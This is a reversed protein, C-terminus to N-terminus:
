VDIVDYRSAVGALPSTSSSRLPVYEPPTTETSDSDNTASAPAVTFNTLLPVPTNPPCASITPAFPPPAASTRPISNEVGASPPTGSPTIPRSAGFENTKTSSHVTGVAPDFPAVNPLAPRV